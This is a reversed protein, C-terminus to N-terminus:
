TGGTRRLRGVYVNLIMAILISIGLIIDFTYASVGQLTFGNDLISLVITGLFAGIITGVGGALATGGIVAASVAAFMIQPGGALPDVSEIRWSDLIGAFGGLFSCLMFNGFKIRAIRV